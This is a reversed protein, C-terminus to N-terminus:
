EYFDAQLFIGTQDAGLATLFKFLGELEGLFPGFIGLLEKEQYGNV